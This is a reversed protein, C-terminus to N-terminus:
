EGSNRWPKPKGYYFLLCRRRRKKREVGSWDDQGTGPKKWVMLMVEFVSIGWHVVYGM